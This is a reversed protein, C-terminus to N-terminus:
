VIVMFTWGSTKSYIDSCRILNFMLMVVDIEEANDLQTNNIESIFGTFPVCNKFIM